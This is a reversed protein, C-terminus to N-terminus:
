RSYTAPVVWILLIPLRVNPAYQKLGTTHQFALPVDMGFLDVSVTFRNLLATNNSVMLELGLDDCHEESSSCLDFGPWAQDYFECDPTITAAATIFDGENGTKM